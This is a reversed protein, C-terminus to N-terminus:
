FCLLTVLCLLEGPLVKGNVEVKMLSWLRKSPLVWSGWDYMSGPKRFGSHSSFFLSASARLKSSCGYRDSGKVAEILKEYTPDWTLTFHRIWFGAKSM